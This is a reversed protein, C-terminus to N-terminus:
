MYKKPKWMYIFIDSLKAKNTKKHMTQSYWWLYFQTSLDGLICYIIYFVLFLEFHILYKFM